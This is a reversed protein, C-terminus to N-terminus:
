IRRWEAAFSLRSAPSDTSVTLAKKSWEDSATVVVYRRLSSPTSSWEQSRTASDIPTQVAACCPLSRGAVSGAVPFASPGVHHLRHVAVVRLTSRSRRPIIGHVAEVSVKLGRTRPEFGLRSV